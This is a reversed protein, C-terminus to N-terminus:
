YVTGKRYMENVLKQVETYATGLRDKRDQGNGYLGRIVDLATEELSGNVSTQKSASADINKVAKSEERDSSKVPTDIKNSPTNEVRKPEEKPQVGVDNAEDLM